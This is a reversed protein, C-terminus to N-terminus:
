NIMTMGGKLTLMGDGKVTTAPSKLEATAVSELTLPASAKLDMTASSEIKVTGDTKLAIGDAAIAISSGGVKVTVSTMGEIVINDAKLYYDKTVVESHNDGFEETVAKGVKFSHSEVIEIAQKGKVKLNRDKGIEELHDNTVKENRNHEVAEFKDKKVVLHRNNGIIEFRDNKLRIDLNKEGHIFIQEEGKKDEFRVENFGAGGKSSNSKIASLTKNDPLKYPPMAEGNYVRGTIIPRDPDGELFEVIVEQGIRPTYIGGWQKGAWVQAVRVWCSSNEDKKPDRDWHFKVKVRGFEDVHIEESSPGVVIATQPGQVIPKPTTQPARFPQAKDIAELGCSFFDDEGKGGSAYEGAEAKLAVATILYERNQDERGHKKMTFTFGASLGRVTGHGRCVEHRAQFEDLRVKALYEGHAHVAYEGPYDYMEFTAAAHNRTVDAVARLSSSPKKFEFDNLAYAGPQVQKEVQWDSIVEEGEAGKELELFTVDAYGEMAEHASIADALVLVHKGNEHTFYYYIGEQEMLRSVFNFDTERYQVCYERPDYSESLKLEFDNFGHGKFVEEIIEGVKKNQFIRCDATRTLLWLWPVLTARYHALGGENAVQAFRCVVGNFYRTSKNPLELRITANTGIIDDFKVEANESSLEVELNFLRSLQENVAVSRLVLEDAGLATEIALTRNKQTAVSAM